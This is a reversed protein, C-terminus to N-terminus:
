VRLSQYNAIKSFSESSLSAGGVLVGDIDAQQMLTKVNDPKVSGGYLLPVSEAVADGWTKAIFRRCFHHMEQAQEPTATVGTGIAWVPEYAIVMKKIEEGTISKLSESLQTELVKETMGNEREEILEGVCLLPQLGDAIARKVKSNIFANTEGFYHRRESHGLIVFGAGADKLMTGAIEGTFAGEMSDSMNQAGVTVKTGKCMAAVSQLCTFPVALYVESSITFVTPAFESIFTLAEGVNKYMKWNGAIITPRSTEDM